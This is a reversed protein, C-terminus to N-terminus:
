GGDVAFLIGFDGERLRALYSALGIDRAGFVFGQLDLIERNKFVSSIEYTLRALM